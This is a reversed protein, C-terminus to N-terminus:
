KEEKGPEPGDEYNRARFLESNLYYIILLTSCMTWGVPYALAIVLRNSPFLLKGFVFLYIQRFAVFSMLMIVTPAVAKGIGRLAGSYIQNFCILLYFPTIVRIFYSGFEIVDKEGKKVFLGVLQGSFAMLLASLVLTTALSLLVSVRTGDHARRYKGAGWNQAVLTASAMSISQVPVVLFADLRGYATWGAIGATKLSNIYAQVFVNSFSTVASQFAAPLGLLMIRKFVDAHIKILKLKLKYAGDTKFLAIMVLVASVLESIITALAVGAVEMDFALVFLLDLATNVVASIILFIVPRTSDGVARLIGTGMNYVMLGSLGWFYIQLYLLADKKVDPDTLNSLKLLPDAAIVGILTGVVSLIFTLAITTHVARSLLGDDHAGYAQSIVVSAGTSLGAFTGVITNILNGNCGVAALANSGVFKGVVWADVTSYFSQFLLGLMMPVAFGLLQSVISGRTMDTDKKLLM